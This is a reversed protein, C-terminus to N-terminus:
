HVLEQALVFPQVILMRFRKDLQGEWATLQEATPKALAEDGIWGAVAQKDDEAVKIGVQLLDLTPAVLIISDRVLQGRLEDWTTEILENELKQAVDDM